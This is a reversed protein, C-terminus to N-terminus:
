ICAKQIENILNPIVIRNKKLHYLGNPHYTKFFKINKYNKNFDLEFLCDSIEKQNFNGINERIFFDYNHGTLFVVINPKLLEIEESIVKFNKFQIKNIEDLNGKGTKGIKNINNWVFISNEPKIVTRKIRKFENWFPGGYSGTGNNLYFSEYIELSKDISNSFASDNGCEGCWFNTEQGFIMIKNEFSEYNSPVQLLFPNTAKKDFGVKANYEKLEPALVQFKEIYLERLKNNMAQIYSTPLYRLEKFIMLGCINIWNFIYSM